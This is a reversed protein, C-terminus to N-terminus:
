DNIRTTFLLKPKSYNRGDDVAIYFEIEENSLKIAKIEDKLKKVDCRFGM